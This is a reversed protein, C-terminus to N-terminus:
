DAEFPYTKFEFSYNKGIQFRNDSKTDKFITVKYTRDYEWLTKPTINMSKFDNSFETYYIVDPKIEINLGGQAVAQSFQIQIPESVYIPKSLDTTIRFSFADQSFFENQKPQQNTDLPPATPLQKEPVKRTVFFVILLLLIIALLSILILTKKPM